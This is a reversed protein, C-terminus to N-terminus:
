AAGTVVEATPVGFNFCISSYEGNEDYKEIQLFLGPSIRHIETSYVITPGLSVKYQNKISISDIAPTAEAEAEDNPACHSTSVNVLLFFTAKIFTILSNILLYLYTM